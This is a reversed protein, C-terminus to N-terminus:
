KKIRYRAGGLVNVIGRMELEFLVASAYHTPMNTEIVIQNINKSDVGKLTDVIRQEDASLDSFLEQQQVQKKTKLPNPWGVANLFDDVSQILHAKQRAILRNCGQSYRDNIRGPFACVEHNYDAALNATILSGGKEASEVVVTASSIGAVIRNRRVFNGKDIATKTMYETLLGGQCIMQVATSRHLRPYITDLGHALVGITNMGHNMATRHAQIDIGYALGSVIIVDPYIKKLEGIFSECMEKGIATCRRTGVISIIHQANLDANGLYYLVLPADACERLLQPYKKDGLCICQINKSNAFAYEKEARELAEGVDRFVGTLRDTADSFLDQLHHRHEFITTANGVEDYLQRTTLLGLGRLQTLAMTYIIEQETM